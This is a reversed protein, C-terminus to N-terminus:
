RVIVEIEVRANLPLAAVGICTRAPYPKEFARAYAENMAAYDDMHALYVNAKVVDGLDKGAAALVAGINKVIQDVEASVGGRVLAGSVPDIGVQGSCFLTKGARVAPSFPLASLGQIDLTVAKRPM